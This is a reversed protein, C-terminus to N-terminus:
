KKVRKCLYVWISRSNYYVTVNRAEDYYVIMQGRAPIDGKPKPDIWKGAAVDFLWLHPTTSNTYLVARKAVPDYVLGASSDRGKARQGTLVKWKTGDPSGVITRDNIVMVVQRTDPDYVAVSAYVSRRVKGKNWVGTAPDRILPGGYGCFWMTKRDPMYELVAAEERGGITNGPGKWNVM